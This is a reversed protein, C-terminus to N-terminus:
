FPGKLGLEDLKDGWVFNVGEPSLKGFKDRWVLNVQITGGSEETEARTKGAEVQSNNHGLIENM